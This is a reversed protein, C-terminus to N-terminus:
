YCANLNELVHPSRLYINPIEIPSDKVLNRFEGLKM